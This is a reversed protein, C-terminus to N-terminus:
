KPDTLALGNSPPWERTPRKGTRVFRAANMPIATVHSPTWKERMSLTISESGDASSPRPM